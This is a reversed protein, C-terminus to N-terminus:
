EDENSKKTDTLSSKRCIPMSVYSATSIWFCEFHGKAGTIIWAGTGGGHTGVENGPCEQGDTVVVM